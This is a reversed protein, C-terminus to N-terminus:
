IVISQRLSCLGMESSAHLAKTPQDVGQRFIATGPESKQLKWAPKNPGQASATRGIGMSRFSSFLDRRIDLVVEPGFLYCSAVKHRRCAFASTRRTMSTSLRAITLFRIRSRKPPCALIVKMVRRGSLISSAFTDGEDEPIRGIGFTSRVPGEDAKAM